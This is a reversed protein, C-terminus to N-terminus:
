PEGPRSGPGTSASSMGTPSTSVGVNLLTDPVLQAPVSGMFALARVHTGIWDSLSQALTAEAYTYNSAGMVAVFIQRRSSSAAGATSCISPRAPM